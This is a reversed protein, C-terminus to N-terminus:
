KWAVTFLRPLADHVVPVHVTTNWTVSGKPCHFPLFSVVMLQAQTQLALQSSTCPQLEIRFATRFEGLLEPTPPPPACLPDRQIQKAATHFQTQQLFNRFLYSKYEHVQFHKIAIEAMGGPKQCLSAATDLSRSWVLMM